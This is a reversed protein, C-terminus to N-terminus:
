ILGIAHSVNREILRSPFVLGDDVLSQLVEKVSQLVIKKEQTAIKEIEKYTYFDGKM